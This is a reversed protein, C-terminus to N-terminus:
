HFKKLSQLDLAAKGVDLVLERLTNLAEKREPVMNQLYTDVSEANSKM